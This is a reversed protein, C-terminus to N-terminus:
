NKSRNKTIIEVHEIERYRFDGDRLVDRRRKRSLKDEELFFNTTDIVLKKRKNWSNQAEIMRQWGRYDDEGMRL